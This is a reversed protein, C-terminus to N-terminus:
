PIPKPSEPIGPVFKFHSMKQLEGNEFIQLESPKLDRVVRGKKDTVTVDLQILNTSIKVIDNESTAAPAQAHLTFCFVFHGILLGCFLYFSAVMITFRTLPSTAIHRDSSCCTKLTLRLYDLM